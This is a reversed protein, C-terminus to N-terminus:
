IGNPCYSVLQFLLVRAGLTENVSSLYFIGSLQISPGRYTNIQEHSM